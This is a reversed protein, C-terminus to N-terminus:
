FEIDGPDSEVGTTPVYFKIKVDFTTGLTENEFTLVYYVDEAIGTEPDVYPRLYDFTYGSPSYYIDDSFAFPLDSFESSSFTYALNNGSFITSFQWNEAILLEDKGIFDTNLTLQFSGPNYWVAGFPPFSLGLKSSDLVAEVSYDLVDKPHSTYTYVNAVFRGQLSVNKIAIRYNSVDLEEFFNALSLTFSASRFFAPLSVIEDGTKWIVNGNEDLLSYKYPHGKYTAKCEAQYGGNVTTCRVGIVADTFPQECILEITHTDESVTGTSLYDSVNANDGFPNTLWYTEWTVRKDTANEPLVTATISKIYKVEEGELAPESVYSATSLSVFPSSVVEELEVSDETVAATAEGTVFEKVGEGTEALGSKIKDCSGCSTLSLCLTVASLVAALVRVTTKKMNKM